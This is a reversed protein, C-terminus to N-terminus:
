PVTEDSKHVNGVLMAAPSVHRDGAGDSQSIAFSKSVLLIRQARSTLSSIEASLGGWSSKWRTNPCASLLLASVSPRIGSSWTIQRLWKGKWRGM